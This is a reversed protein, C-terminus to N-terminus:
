RFNKWLMRIVVPAGILATISNVPLSYDSGPLQAMFDSTVMLIAGTLFVAPIMYQYLRTRFLLYALHPAILGVFALTGTFSTMTGVLIGSMLILLLHLFRVNAGLASAYDDGILLANFYKTYFLSVFLGSIVLAIIIWLGANWGLALNGMSWFVFKQLQGAPAFFSLISLVSGSFAGIMIGIILLAYPSKLRQYIYIDTLLVGISGLAAAISIWSDNEMSFLMLIVAVGLGAGGGLGLVYPGVIPNKFLTQMWLGALGLGGGVFVATLIRPLRYEWIITHYAGASEGFLSHFFAQDSIWLSGTRWDIIILFILLLFLLIYLRTRKM